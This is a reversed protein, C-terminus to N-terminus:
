TEVPTIVLRPIVKGQMLHQSILLNIEEEVLHGYWTGHAPNQGGYIVMNPGSGCQGLCRCLTLRINKIKKATIQKQLAHLSEEAGQGTCTSGTCIFLHHYDSM